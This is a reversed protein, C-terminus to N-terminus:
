RIITLCCGNTCTFRSPLGCDSAVTCRNQPACSQSPCESGECFIPSCGANTDCSALCQSNGNCVKQCASTRAAGTLDCRFVFSGGSTGIVDKPRATSLGLPNPTTVTCTVHVRNNAPDRQVGWVTTLPLPVSAFGAGELSSGKFLCSLSSIRGSAPGQMTAQPPLAPNFELNAGRQTIRTNPDAMFLDQRTSTGVTFVGTASTGCRLKSGNDVISAKVGSVPVTTTGGTLMQRRVVLSPCGRQDSGLASPSTDSEDAYEDGASSSCAVSLAGVAAFALTGLITKKSM